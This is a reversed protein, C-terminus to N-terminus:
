AALGEIAFVRAPAGDAGPILLPAACLFTRSGELATTNILYEILTVGHRLLVDHTVHQDFPVEQKDLLLRIPFDQPFDFAVATPKLTALYEAADRTLWPSETWFERTNRDRRGDWGASLLLIEGEPGGPDAARLRAADIAANDPAARLDFIRAPGVVRDLPTSEITPADALIHARADVHSFGHCTTHLKTVRFQDGAAIDGTVSIEPRWRFHPAIPMSLDILRM